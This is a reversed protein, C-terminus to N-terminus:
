KRENPSGAPSGSEALEIEKLGALRVFESAEITRFSQKALSAEMRKLSIPQAAQAAMGTIAMNALHKLKEPNSLDDIKVTSSRKQIRRAKRYISRNGDGHMEVIESAVALHIGVARDSRFVLGHDAQLRDLATRLLSPHKKIEVHARESLEAFAIPRHPNDSKSTELLFKILHSTAPSMEFKKIELETMQIREFFRRQIAYRPAATRRTVGRHPADRLPSVLKM